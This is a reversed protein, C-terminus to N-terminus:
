FALPSDEMLKAGLVEATAQYQGVPLELNLKGHADTRASGQITKCDSITVMANAVQNGEANTVKM